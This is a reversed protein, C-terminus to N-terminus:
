SYNAKDYAKYDRDFVNAILGAGRCMTYCSAVTARPNRWGSVLASAATLGGGAVLRTAGKALNRLRGKTSRAPDPGLQAELSGTRYWRLLLWRTTMRAPAVTEHIIADPAYAIRHGADVFAKFFLTDEGGTLNFQHDFVLGMRELVALDLLLNGTYGDTPFPAEDVPRTAYATVPLHAPPRKPFVPYVPGLVAGAGTDDMRRVLADLWGPEPLEDDDVFALRAAGLRRAADLAANRAHALGKRAEHTYSVAFRSTKGFESVTDRASADPSNDVIAIVVDDDRLRSLRLNQLATLTRSLGDIRRYTCIAIALKPM